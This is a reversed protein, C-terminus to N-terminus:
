KLIEQQRKRLLLCVTDVIYREGILMFREMVKTANEVDILNSFLTIFAGAILPELLIKQKKFRKLVKPAQRELFKRILKSMEFLKPTESTYFTRWENKELLKIFILFALAEDDVVLLIM